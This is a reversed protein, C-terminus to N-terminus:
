EGPSPQESGGTEQPSVTEVVAPIDLTVVDNMDPGEIKLALKWDGPVPFRIDDIVYLGRGADKVSPTSSSSVTSGPLVPTVTITLGPIDHAKYNHIILNAQNAGVVPPDSKFVLEATYYGTQTPKFSSGKIHQVLEPKYTVTCSFILFASLLILSRTRM